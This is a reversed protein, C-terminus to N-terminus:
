GDSPAIEQTESTATEIKATATGVSHPTGVPAAKVTATRRAPGVWETESRMVAAGCQSIVADMAEDLPVNVTGATRDVWGGSSLMADSQERYTLFMEASATGENMEAKRTNAYQVFYMSLLVVTLLVGFVIALLTLGIATTNVHAAHEQQPMAEDSSHRFWDDHGHDDHHDSM